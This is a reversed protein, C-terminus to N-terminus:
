RLTTKLDARSFFVPHDEGAVASLSGLKLDTWSPDVATNEAAYRAYDARRTEHRCMLIGTGPVLVFPMGLSNTFPEGAFAGAAAENMLAGNGKKFDVGKMAAAALTSIDHHLQSVAARTETGSEVYRNCLFIVFSRSFPDIWLMQGTWGTHGYSGVPFLAGRALTYPHPPTRYPTEIDWGLGRRVPLNKAAPSTLGPPTQVSTFLTVTEPKFLRRGDLEGLNLMMRAFRALDATTSFLSAHAAVGGVLRAVTDNVKGREPFDTPAVRKLQEGGPRFVTDNMGLPKFVETTCLEDFERGTVQELVGGLVMTGASSYSYATGPEFILKTHCAQALADAPSAFPPLTSNLNVPMGSSHLLLHRVTIKERGEGTFAPLYHAVREDLQILDREVAWMAASTAALVKTISALDLLTDETMVEPVPKTARQGFAKHYAVGEREVWLTAGVLTSERIAKEIAVDIEALKDGNFVDDRTTASKTKGKAEREAERQAAEDLLTKKNISWEPNPLAEWVRFHRFSAETSAVLMISQKESAFLPSSLTVSEGDVTGVVEDGKIELVLTHWEDLQSAKRLKASEGRSRQKTVPDIKEAEYPTVSVLGPGLGFSIVYDKADTAKIAISRYKRGEEPVKNLRVECQIIADQYQIGFSATAPHNAGPTEIGKFSGEAVEWRGSKAGVPGAQYRWGTFGSAFGVPKGTFPAPAEAFDESALLKGRTTMLTRPLDEGALSSAAFAASLFIFRLFPKMPEKM